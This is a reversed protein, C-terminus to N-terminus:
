AAKAQTEPGAPTKTNSPKALPQINLRIVFDEGQTVKAGIAALNADFDALAGPHKPDSAAIAAAESRAALIAAKNPEEITRIFDKEWPGKLAHLAKLFGEDTQKKKEGHARAYTVAPPNTHYGIEHGGYIEAKRSETFLQPNAEAYAMLKTISDEKAAVHKAAKRAIRAKLREAIQKARNNIEEEKLVAVVYTSMADRAEAATPPAPKVAISTTTQKKM